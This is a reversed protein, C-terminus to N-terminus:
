SGALEIRHRVERGQKLYIVDEAINGALDAIRELNHGILLYAMAAGSSRPQDQVAAKLKVLLDDNLKDVVDDGKLVERAIDASEKLFADLSTRLVHDTAGYLEEIGFDGALPPEELVMLARQAINVAHDGIRELATNIKLMMMVQRLDAAMPQGTVFLTHGTADIEMELRNIVQDGEIVDRALRANSTFLAECARSVAEEAQFCMELLKQRLKQIEDHFHRDM